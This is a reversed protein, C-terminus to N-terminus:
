GPFRRLEVIRQKASEVSDTADFAKFSSEYWKVTAATVNQLCKRETIFQDQLTL